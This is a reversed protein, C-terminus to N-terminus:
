ETVKRESYPFINILVLIGDIEITCMGGGFVCMRVHKFNPHIKSNIFLM